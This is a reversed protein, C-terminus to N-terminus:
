ESKPPDESSKKENEITSYIYLAQHTHKTQLRQSKYLLVSSYLTEKGGRRKKNGDIFLLAPKIPQIVSERNTLATKVNTEKYWVIHLTCKKIRYIIM